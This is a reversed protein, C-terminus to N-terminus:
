DGNPEADAGLGPTQMIDQEMLPLMPRQLRRLGEHYIGYRAVTEPSQVVVSPARQTIIGKEVAIKSLAIHIHMKIADRHYFMGDERLAEFHPYFFCFLLDPLGGGILAERDEDRWASVTRLRENAIDVRCLMPAHEGDLDEWPHRPSGRRHWLVEYDFDRLSAFEDFELM